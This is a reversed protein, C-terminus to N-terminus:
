TEIKKVWAHYLGLAEDLLTDDQQTQLHTNFQQLHESMPRDDEYAYKTDTKAKPIVFVVKTVGAWYMKASCMLCSEMSSYIVADTLPAGEAAIAKDIVMCEGHYWAVSPDSEYVNGSKTVLVAGAPFEGAEFSKRSLDVSQKLYNMTNM